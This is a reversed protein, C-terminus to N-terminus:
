VGFEWCRGRTSKLVEVWGLVSLGLDEVRLGAGCQGCRGRTFVVRSWGFSSVSM